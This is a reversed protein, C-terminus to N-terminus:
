RREVGVIAVRIERAAGARHHGARGSGIRRDLARRASPQEAVEAARERQKCEVRRDFRRIDRREGAIADAAADDVDAPRDDGTRRLDVVDLTERMAAVIGPGAGDIQNPRILVDARAPAVNSRPRTRAAM